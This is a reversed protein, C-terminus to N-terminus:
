THMAMRVQNVVEKVSTNAKVIYKETGHEVAHVVNEADSMNTLYVIKASKGWPDLRIKTVAEHGGMEPMMIDVLIADPHHALTLEVCQNGNVAQLVNIGAASFAATYMERIMEDDDAILITLNSM